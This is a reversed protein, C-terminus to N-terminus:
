KVPFAKSLVLDHRTGFANRTWFQRKRNCRILWYPFDSINFSKWPFLSVTMGYLEIVDCKDSYLLDRLVHSLWDATAVLCSRSYLPLTAGTSLSAGHWSSTNPLTSTYSWANKVEASSPPSHNAERGPRKVELSLDGPVVPYSAPHAGSGNQVRHHLSFNGARVPFQVSSPRDDLGSGTTIGVSSDRSETQIICLYFSIPVHSRSTRKANSPL